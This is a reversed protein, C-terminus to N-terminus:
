QREPIAIPLCDLRLPAAFVLAGHELNPVAKRDPIGYKKTQPAALSIVVTCFEIVLVEATGM